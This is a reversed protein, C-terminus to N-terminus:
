MTFTQVVEEKGYKNCAQNDCVTLLRYRLYPETLKESHLHLQSGCELCIPQNFLKDQITTKDTEGMVHDWYIVPALLNAVEILFSKDDERFHDRSTSDGNFVGIVQNYYVIPVSILSLLNQNFTKPIYHPDKHINGTLYPEGSQTAWGAIGQNIKFTRWTAADTLDADESVLSTIVLEQRDKSVLMISGADTRMAQLAFVLAFQLKVELSASKNQLIDRINKLLQAKFSGHLLFHEPIKTQEARKVLEDSSTHLLSEVEDYDNYQHYNWGRLNAAIDSTDVRKDVLLLPPKGFGLSAGFGFFVMPDTSIGIRCIIFEANQIFRALYCIQLGAEIQEDIYFAKLRTDKLGREIANRFDKDYQGKSSRDLVLYYQFDIMRERDFCWRHCFYCANAEPSIPEGIGRDLEAFIPRLLESLREYSPYEVVRSKLWNPVISASEQHVIPIIQKNKGLALGLEIYVNPSYDTFDYVGFRTAYIRRAIKILIYQPLAEEDAFYPLFKPEFAKRIAKRLDKVHPRNYAHSVFYRAQGANWDGASMYGSIPDSLSPASLVHQRIIELKDEIRALIEKQENDGVLDSGFHEKDSSKEIFEVNSELKKIEHHLEEIEMSIHVPCDVGYYAAKKELNRHRNRKIALLDKTYKLDDDM